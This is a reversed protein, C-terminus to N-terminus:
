GDQNLRGLAVWFLEPTLRRVNGENCRIAMKEIERSFHDDLINIMEASLQVSNRKFQRRLKNVVLTRM